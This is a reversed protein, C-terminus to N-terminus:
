LELRPVAALLERTYAHQPREFVEDRGGTEVIKGQHMVAIRDSVHRVVSLDHSVFLMAFGRSRRLQALLNLIQAQVSVDLSSVPEDAILLLPNMALARAIAIRQRQGGSFEHPYKNMSLPELGVQEMLAAVAGTMGSGSAAGAIALPEALTERISMRPNLSAYPNQFVMQVKRRAGRLSRTDLQLIDQGDLLVQGSQATVFRLIAKGLTTKGCGSEGVLGLAEGVAIELSVGDVAHLTSHTRRLLSGEALAFSVHLDQV